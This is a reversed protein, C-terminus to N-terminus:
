QTTEVDPVLGTVTLPLPLDSFINLQADRQYGQLMPSEYASSILTPNAAGYSTIVGASKTSVFGMNVVQARALNDQGVKAYMSNYVRMKLRPLTKLKMQATGETAAAVIPLTQAQSIFNLGAICYHCSVPLALVGGAPVGTGVYAGDCVIELTQGNFMADVAITNFAVANFQYAACHSLVAQRSDTWFPTAVQEVTNYTTGGIVRTVQLYVIDRDAFGQSDTGPVVCLSNITGGAIVYRWWAMVGADADYVLVAATGDTRLFWMQVVPAVQTDFAVIPNAKFLHSAFFTLDQPPVWPNNPGQWQFRYVKTGIRQIFIVGGTVLTAPVASDGTASVQFATLNTPNSAAPVVWEGSATGIIIDQCPRLWLIQDYRDSNITFDGADGPNVVDQFQPTPLYTAPNTTPTGDSNLQLVPVSMTSIDSWAMGIIGNAGTPDAVPDYIGVISQWFEQPNNGTNAAWWRESIVAGCSPYNGAGQFPKPQLTFTLNTAGGATANASLTLTYTVPNTGATPVISLAYTGAPINGASDTILWTSETPLLNTTLGTVTPSGAGTTCALLNGNPDTTITNTRFTLTLLTLTDPTTWRIRAPAHNPHWIFLDPFYSYFQINPIEATTYTSGAITSIVSGNKWARIKNNTFELVYVHSSDIVFPVLRGAIDSFTHGLLITGPAKYFGGQAVPVFNQMLAAAKFYVPQATQGWFQPAIEGATFDSLAPTQRM